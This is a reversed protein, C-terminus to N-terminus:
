FISGRPHFDFLLLGCYDVVFFLPAPLVFFMNKVNSMACGRGVQLLYLYPRQRAVSDGVNRVHLACGIANVLAFRYIDDYTEELIEQDNPVM